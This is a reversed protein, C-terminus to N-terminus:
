SFYRTYDRRINLIQERCVPDLTTDEVKATDVLNKLVMKLPTEGSSGLGMDLIYEVCLRLEIVDNQPDFDGDAECRVNVYPGYDKNTIVIEINLGATTPWVFDICHVPFRCSKILMDCSFDIIFDPIAALLKHNFKAILERYINAYITRNRVARPLSWTLIVVDVLYPDKHMVYKLIDSIYRIEHERLNEVFDYVNESYKDVLQQEGEIMVIPMPNLYRSYMRRCLHLNDIRENLIENDGLDIDTDLVDFQQVYTEPSFYQSM